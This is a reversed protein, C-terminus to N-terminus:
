GNEKSRVKIGVFTPTSVPVKTGTDTTAVGTANITKNEARKLEIPKRVIGPREILAGPPYYICGKSAEDPKGVFGCIKAFRDFQLKDWQERGYHVRSGAQREDNPITDVFVNSGILDFYLTNDFYGSLTNGHSRSSSLPQKRVEGTPVRIPKGKDDFGPEKIENIEEHSIVILHAKSSRLRTLFTNLYAMNFHFMDWDPKDQFKAIDKNNDNYVQWITSYILAKLSDVVIVDNSNMNELWLEFHAAAKDMVNDFQPVIRNISDNWIIRENKTFRILFESFIPRLETDYCNIVNIRKRAEEKVQLIAKEGKDGNFLHVNFGFEAARLAWTTKRLKPMGYLMFTMNTFTVDTGKGMM